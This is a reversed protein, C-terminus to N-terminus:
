PQLSADILRIYLEPISGLEHHEMFTQQAVPRWAQYGTNACTDVAFLGIKGPDTSGLQLKLGEQETRVWEGIPQELYDYWPLQQRLRHLTEADIYLDKPTIVLNLANFQYQGACYRQALQQRMAYEDALGLLHGLEHVFVKFDAESSITMSNNLVSALVNPLGMTTQMLQTDVVQIWADEQYESPLDACVIRGTASLECAHPEIYETVCLGLAALPHDALRMLWAYLASRANGGSSSVAINFQCDRQANLHYGDDALTDALQAKARWRASHAGLQQWQKAVELWPHNFLLAVLEPQYSSTNALAHLLGSARQPDSLITQEIVSLVAEPHGLTAAKQLWYHQQHPILQALRYAAQADQQTVARQYYTLGLARQDRQWYFDALQHSAQAVGIYSATYTVSTVEEDLQSLWYDHDFRQSSSLVLVFSICFAIRLLYHLVSRLVTLLSHQVGNVM